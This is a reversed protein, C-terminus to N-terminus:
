RKGAAHLIEEVWQIQAPSLFAPYPSEYELKSDFRGRDYTAASAEALLLNVAEVPGRLPIPVPPMPDRLNWPYVDVDPRRDGRFTMAFYDGPPLPEALQAHGGRILLDIEVVHVGRAVLARRKARHIAAGEGVKNAPSLIEVSTVLDHKPLRLIEIYGERIELDDTSPITVPLTLVATAGQGAHSRAPSRSRKEAIAVDPIYQKVAEDSISISQVREQVRAIYSQPLREGLQYVCEAILLYHFEEWFAPDELFPNMGPFPNAM